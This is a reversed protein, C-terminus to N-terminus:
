VWKGLQRIERCVWAVGITSQEPRAIMNVTRPKVRKAVAGAVVLGEYWFWQGM